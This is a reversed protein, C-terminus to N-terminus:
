KRSQFGKQTRILEIKNTRSIISEIRVCFLRMRKRILSEKQTRAELPVRVGVNNGVSSKSDLADVLEAMLASKILYAVQEFRNCIYPSNKFSWVKQFTKKRKKVIQTRCIFGM